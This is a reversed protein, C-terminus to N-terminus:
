EARRMEEQLGLVAALSLVELERGVDCFWDVRAEDRRKWKGLHVFVALVEGTKGNVLKFTKGVWRSGGYEKRRTRTWSYREGAFEFSHKSPDFKGSPTVPIWELLDTCDPYQGLLLFKKNAFGKLRCSALTSKDNASQVIIASDGFGHKERQIIVEYTPTETIDRITFASTRGWTPAPIISYSKFPNTSENLVSSSREITSHHGAERAALNPVTWTVTAAQSKMRIIKNCSRLKLSFFPLLSQSSAQVVSTRKSALSHRLERSSGVLLPTGVYRLRLLKRAAVIYRAHLASPVDSRM